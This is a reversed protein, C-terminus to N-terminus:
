EASAGRKGRPQITVTGACGQVESGGTQSEGPTTRLQEKQRKETSTSCV